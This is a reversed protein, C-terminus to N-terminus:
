GTEKWTRAWAALVGAGRPPPFVSPATMIDCGRFVPRNAAPPGCWPCPTETVANLLVTPAPISLRALERLLRKTERGPLEGTRTVAVFRAREPDSLLARFRKLSKALDLLGAAFDGLGLAQRYKLLLSLLAHDWALATEPM